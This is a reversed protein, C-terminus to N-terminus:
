PEKLKLRLFLGCKSHTACFAELQAYLEAKFVPKGVQSFNEQIGFLATHVNNYMPRDFLHYVEDIHKSIAANRETSDSIDLIENEVGSCMQFEGHKRGWCGLVLVIKM